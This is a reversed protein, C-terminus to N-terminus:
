RKKQIYTAISDSLFFIGLGLFIISIGLGQMFTLREQFIFYALICTGIPEGLISMSITTASVKKLLINLLFQGLITAIFAIGLLAYWTKESYGIFSSGELLSYIGLFIVSSLFAIFSYVTASISRRAVQGIMFYLAVVAAALIALFDGWFADTSITFDAGSIIFSGLIALSTGLLAIRNHREHFLFYGFAMTFLPQLTVLVTSSAISTYRLSQFWLIYHIALLVGASLAYIWEISHLERIDKYTKKNSFTIPILFLLAFGLRYFAIIASPADALKVFIASTSVALVAFALLIYRQIPNM